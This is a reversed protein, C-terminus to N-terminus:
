PKTIMMSAMKKTWTAMTNTPIDITMKKVGTCKIMLMMTIKVDDDDHIMLNEARLGPELLYLDRVRPM